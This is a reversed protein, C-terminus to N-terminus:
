IGYNVAWILLMSWLMLNVLFGSDSSLVRNRTNIDVLVVTYWLFVWVWWYRLTGDGWGTSYQSTEDVSCLWCCQLWSLSRDLPSVCLFPHYLVWCFFCCCLPLLDVLNVGIPWFPRCIKSYLATQFICHMKWFWLMVVYWLGHFLMLFSSTWGLSLNLHHSVM